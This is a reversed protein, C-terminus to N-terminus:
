GRLDEVVKKLFAARHRRLKSERLRRSDRRTSEQTSQGDQPQVALRLVLTAARVLIKVSEEEEAIPQLPHNRRLLRKNDNTLQDRATACSSAAFPEISTLLSFGRVCIQPHQAVPSSTSTNNSATKTSLLTIKPARVVFRDFSHRVKSGLGGLWGLKPAIQTKTGMVMM